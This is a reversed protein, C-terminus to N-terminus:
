ILKIYLDTNSFNIEETPNSKKISVFPSNVPGFIEKVVGIKVYEQNYIPKQFIKELSSNWKLAKFIYHKKMSIGLYHFNLKVWNKM